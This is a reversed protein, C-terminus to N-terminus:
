FSNFYKRKKNGKLKYELYNKETSELLSRGPRGKGTEGEAPHWKQGPAFKLSSRLLPAAWKPQQVSMLHKHHLLSTHIQRHVCARKPLFAPRPSFLRNACSSQRRSASVFLHFTSCFKLLAETLSWKM